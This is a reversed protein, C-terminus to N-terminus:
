QLPRPQRQPQVIRVLRGIRDIWRTAPPARSLKVLKTYDHGNLPLEMAQSSEITGGTTNSATEVLPVQATVEVREQVAGASLKVDARTPAGVRM